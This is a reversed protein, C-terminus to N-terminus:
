EKRCFIMQNTILLENLEGRASAKSNISRRASVRKLCYNEYLSDFFPMGDIIPDSNSLIWSAGSTDLKNCFELLRNQEKDDFPTSAYNNFLSTTNLPKYPPDLYILTSGNVHPLIEEFDGNLLQVKQLARSVLRLNETDCIMPNKYSGMPVNFKDSRNVRYLGNFCTRNLFIFIAAQVTDVQDRKNFIERQEYYFTKKAPEDDKLVRFSDALKKLQQITDEVELKICSYVNILDTNLDNLFVNELNPYTALVHFLLAGSGAFPEIYTTFTAEDPPPLWKKIENILQTKGGAWKLFPKAIAKKEQM